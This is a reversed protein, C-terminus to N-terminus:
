PNGGWGFNFSLLVDTVEDIKDKPNIWNSELRVGYQKRDGFNVQAGIGILRNTQKITEKFNDSFGPDLQDRIGLRYEARQVGLRVFLDVRRDLLPLIGLISVDYGSSDAAAKFGDGAGPISEGVIEQFDGGAFLSAEFAFYQVPRFALYIRTLDDSEKITTFQPPESPLVIDSTTKLETQGFGIGAYWTPNNQAAAVGTILFLFCISLGRMTRM